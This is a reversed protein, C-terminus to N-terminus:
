RLGLYREGISEKPEIKIDTLDQYDEVQSPNVLIQSPNVGFKAQFRKIAWDLNVGLPRNPDDRFWYMFHDPKLM